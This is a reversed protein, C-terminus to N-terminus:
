KEWSLDETHWDSLGTGREDYRVLTHHQALARLLHSWVPSDWDYELHSIYNASKVLFPGTGATAYAIRHGDPANIFRVQQKMIAHLM